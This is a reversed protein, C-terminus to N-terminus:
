FRLDEPNRSRMLILEFAEACEFGSLSGWRQAVAKTMETSRPHPSKRIEYHYASLAKIKYKLEKTIEIYFNPNFKYPKRWDTAAPIEFSMVSSVTSDPIPRTATITAEYVARHDPNLDNYHHTFVINPKIELIKKEIEKTIKLLPIQDLELNALDLFKVDTVGLIMAANKAHKKRIEIEKKMKQMEEETIEYQPSSVYGSKRRGTIGESVFLISVNHKRSLKKITGGMGITEDDPHACVVLINM